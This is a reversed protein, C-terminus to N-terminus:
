ARSFALIVCDGSNEWGVVGAGGDTHNVTEVAYGMVGGDGEIHSSKESDKQVGPGCGCDGVDAM